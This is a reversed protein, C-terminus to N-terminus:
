AAGILAVGEATAARALAGDLTALAIGERQALELYAADYFTLRHRHALGWVGAENPLPALDIPASSVRSLFADVHQATVRQRRIGSLAANRIEFWWILPVLARQKGVFMEGVLDTVLQQEDRFCWGLAVSADLVFPM